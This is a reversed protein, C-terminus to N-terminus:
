TPIQEKNEKQLVYQPDHSLCPDILSRLLPPTNIRTLLLHPHPVLPPPTPRTLALPMYSPQTSLYPNSHPPTSHYGTPVAFLHTPRLYPLCNLQNPPPTAPRGSSPLTLIRLITPHIHLPLHPRVSICPSSNRPLASPKRRPRHNQM